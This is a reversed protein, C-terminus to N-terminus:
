EFPQQERRGETVWAAVEARSALGLKRLIKSIHRKVTHESLFLEQAIQRNPMGQAVMAAVEGERATLPDTTLPDDTKGGAPPREPAPAVEEYLAYEAAEQASMASGEAFAAKWASEGLLARATAMSPEYYPRTEPTPPAGINTRLVEAAGWLRAARVGQARAGALGAFGELCYAVYEWSEIERNLALGEKLFGEALDQDDGSWFTLLGMWGVTRAVRLDDGLEKYLSLCEMGLSKAREYEGKQRAVEALNRMAMAITRREGIKRSTALAEEFFPASRELDGKDLYQTGLCLIAFAVGGDDGLERYLALAEGHLEIAYEYDGRHWAFTGAESLIKTRAATDTAVDARGRQRLAAGLWASGELFRARMEWFRALAGALRLTTEPENELSWSLAARMNDHEAELRKAWEQQQAGTLEPAAEEALALFFEAHRRWFADAEGSTELRERAYQKVTELLRYRRVEGTRVEAVVLSKDVLKSLLELIEEEQIGGSTGVAEEAAELTWGGAFVSLRRLLVREEASLLNYSWELTARLTRQRRPATRSDGRLLKLSDELRESIQELSLTRVRAAALEVALPIGELRSCIQAVAEANEARLEFHPSGLRARAVFLRVAEYRELEGTAPARHADRDDSRHVDPFSLPEVRWALEGEVGLTERSTAVVRLLPCSSLLANSLQAVAEILHECNDLVLLLRKERLDDVLADSLSQGPEEPVGLADTVAHPVLKGETLPALEVLWVGDPYAGILDRAVELALRTKGSGGAGSLTLLRTMALQRKLDLMEWERGIFSNRQAPLNHAQAVGATQETPPGASQVLGAHFRGAAIEERLARTSASPEGGLGSSLAKSLRGYQRLAEESRGSLAYLRMIGVHAEENTPEEALVRQFAQFAATLDEEAARDEHLRALEVLLTLFRQRLEQRRSEAWEEYRDEPLLEGSYLEIAARHAAPDESRRTTDAAEEFADIDVWLAGEQCILLQEGSVNLLRSAIEPDHHLIKRAVHLTQRLNNSAAKKGSEPWLLDMARERHLRHSPALALLKILSAAKKLRWASDDIKRDGVTVSFGGLLGIRVAGAEKARGEALLTNAQARM